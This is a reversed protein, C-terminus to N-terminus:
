RQWVVKGSKKVVKVRHLPIEKIETNHKIQLFNGDIKIIDNFTIPKLCNNVRDLYYLTYDDKNENKDWIIKSILNKITIM